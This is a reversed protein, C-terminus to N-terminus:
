RTFAPKTKMEVHDEDLVPSKKSKNDTDGRRRSTANDIEFTISSRRVMRVDDVPEGTVPDPVRVTEYETMYDVNPLPDGADKKARLKAETDPDNVRRWGFYRRAKVGVNAMDEPLFAQIADGRHYQAEPMSGEYGGLHFAVVIM